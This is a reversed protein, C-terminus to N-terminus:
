LTNKCIDRYECHFCRKDPSICKLDNKICIAVSRATEKLLNYDKEKRFSHFMSKRYIDLYLLEFEDVNFKQKLAYASATLELDRDTMADTIFRNNEPRFKIVQIVREKTDPKEIERVYEWIGTLMLGKAIPVEYPVNIIIPFQPGRMMEEFTIIADIGAQRKGEYTDRKMASPTYIIESNTRQKIWAKGWRYKLFKMADKVTGLQLAHLYAYFVEHLKEDYLQKLNYENIHRRKLHYYAPCFSYDLIDKIDIKLAM